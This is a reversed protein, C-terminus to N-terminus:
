YPYYISAWDCKTCCWIPELEHLYDGGLKVHSAKMAQILIYSPYGFVVPVVTGDACGNHLSRPCRHHYEATLRQRYALKWSTEGFPICLATSARQRGSHCVSHRNCAASASEPFPTTSHQSDQLSATSSPLTASSGATSTMAEDSAPAAKVKQESPGRQNQQQACDVGHLCSSDASLLPELKVQWVSDSSAAQM